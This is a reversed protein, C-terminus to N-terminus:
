SPALAVSAPQSRTQAPRLRAARSRPLDGKKVIEAGHAGNALIASFLGFSLGFVSLVLLKTRTTM